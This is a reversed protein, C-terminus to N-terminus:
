NCSVKEPPTFQKAVPPESQSSVLMEISRCINLMDVKLYDYVRYNELENNKIPLTITATRSNGM